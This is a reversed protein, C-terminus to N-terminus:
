AVRGAPEGIGELDSDLLPKGLKQYERQAAHAIHRAAVASAGEAAAEFAAALAINRINGGTLPFRAALAAFRRRGGAAAGASM